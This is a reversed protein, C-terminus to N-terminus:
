HNRRYQGRRAPLIDVDDPSEWSRVRPSKAPTKPATASAKDREAAGSNFRPPIIQPPATVSEAPQDGGSDAEVPQAYIAREPVRATRAESGAESKRQEAGQHLTQIGLSVLLNRLGSLRSAAHYLAEDQESVPAADEDPAAQSIAEQAATARIPEQV